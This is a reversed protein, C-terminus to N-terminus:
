SAAPAALEAAMHEVHELPVRYRTALYQASTGKALATRILDATKQREGNDTDVTRARARADKTGLLNKLPEPAVQAGGPAVQAGGPAVQAGGVPAVRAGGPAVQAGGKALSQFAMRYRTVRGEQAKSEILSLAELERLSYQCQRESLRSRRAITAVAPWSWGDSDNACDALCLLVLAQTPSIAPFNEAPDLVALM